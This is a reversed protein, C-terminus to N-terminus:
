RGVTVLYVEGDSVTPLSLTTRGGVVAVRGQFVTPPVVVPAWTAPVRAITVQASGGPWPVRVAVSVAVPPVAVADPGTCSFNVGPLCSVDRGIMTVLRSSGADQTALVSVTADSSAAAVLQGTMRGYTAYVWYDARPTSGDAALLGDLTPAACDDSVSGNANREPWCSRGARDVSARELAAIDGLTWGPTAYNLQRGYENVWVQPHGLAPRDAILRRAVAVHDEIIQPLSNFDRPQSGLDNDIEHWTIAALQLGHSAAFNLFTVLDPEHLNYEGPYDAFHSLSPGLIHAGPDAAKIAQYAVLFQQLYDAVTAAATDTASFYTPAGPENQIEWYSVKHGSAEIVRVTTTVWTAYAGWNAWPPRAGSGTTTEGQWLNSLLM